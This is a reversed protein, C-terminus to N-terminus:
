DNTEGHKFDKNTLQYHILTDVKGNNLIFTTDTQVVNHKESNYNLEHKCDSIYESLVGVAVCCVIALIVTLFASFGDNEDDIYYGILFTILLAIVLLIIFFALM